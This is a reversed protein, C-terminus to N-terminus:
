KEESSTIDYKGDNIEAMIAPSVYQGDRCDPKDVYEFIVGQGNSILDFFKAMDEMSAFVIANETRKRVRITEM